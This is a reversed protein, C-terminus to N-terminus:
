EPQRIFLFIESLGHNVSHYRSRKLHPRATTVWTSPWGAQFDGNTTNNGPGHYALSWGAILYIGGSEFVPWIASDAM